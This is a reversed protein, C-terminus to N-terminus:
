APQLRHLLMAPAHVLELLFLLILFIPIYESANGHIRIVRLMERDGGDGLPVHLTRRGHVVGMALTILLLANLGAYLLTISPIM